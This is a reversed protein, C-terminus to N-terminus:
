NNYHTFFMALLRSQLERVGRRGDVEGEGVRRRGWAGLKRPQDQVASINSARKIQRQDQVASINSARKIQRKTKQSKALLVFLLRHQSHRTSCISRMLNVSFFV